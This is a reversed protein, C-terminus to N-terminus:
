LQQKCYLKVIYVFHICWSCKSTDMQLAQLTQSPCKTALASPHDMCSCKSHAGHDGHMEAMFIDSRDECLAAYHRNCQLLLFPNKSFKINPHREFKCKPFRKLGLFFNAVQCIGICCTALGCSLAISTQQNCKICSMLCWAARVFADMSISHNPHWLIETETEFFIKFNIVIKTIQVKFRDKGPWFNHNAPLCAKTDGGPNCNQTYWKVKKSNMSHRRKDPHGHNNANAFMSSCLYWRCWCPGEVHCKRFHLMQWWSWSVSRHWSAQCPMKTNDSAALQQRTM